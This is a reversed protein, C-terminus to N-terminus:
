KRVWEQFLVWGCREIETAAEASLHAKTALLREEYEQLKSTSLGTGSERCAHLAAAAFQAAEVPQNRDAALLSRLSFMAPVASRDRLQKRLELSEDLAAQAQDFEGLYRHLAALNHLTYAIARSEGSLRQLELCEEFALRAAPYDEIELLVAGLNALAPALTQPRGIERSIQISSELASRAGPLDELHLATIGLNTLLGAINKRDNISRFYSLAREFPAKAAAADGAALALNGALSDASAVILPDADPHNSTLQALVARAEAAHGRVMWFIALDSAIRLPADTAGPFRLAARVNDHEMELRDLWAAQEAGNCGREAEKALAEFYALHSRGLQERSEISVREAAYQRITELMRFRMTEHREEASILSLARLESLSRLVHSSVERLQESAAVAEAAEASWGGRFVSLNALFVRLSEPLYDFSWDIAARLSQHRAPAGPDASAFADLRSGLERVIERPTRVAARAAALEIALPVGELQRCLDAVAVSNTETLEFAPNAQRARDAFLAVSEVEAVDRGEVPIEMSPVAFERESPDHLRHRSTVLLRVGPMRALLQQIVGAGGAALQEFNDLVLLAPEEEIFAVIQELATRAPNPEIRLAERVTSAILAPDDIDALPVFWVAHSYETLFTEAAAIALRTKGTGGPGTLTVLKTTMLLSRLKAIQPERGVFRSLNGPLNHQWAPVARLPPFDCEGVCVQFLRVPTPMGRLRYAGLARMEAVGDTVALASCVIQGGHATDRIRAARNLVIGRFEGNERPEVEGAHIGVRVALPGTAPPWECAGLRKQLAVAFQVATDCHEFVLLFGDGAEVLERGGHKHLVARVTTNHLDLAPRLAEGYREWSGTSDEIDTFVFCRFVRHGDRSGEPEGTRSESDRAEESM